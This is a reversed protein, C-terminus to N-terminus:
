ISGDLSASIMSWMDPHRHPSLMTTQIQIHSATYKKIRPFLGPLIIKISRREGERTPDGSKGLFFRLFNAKVVVQEEVKVAVRRDIMEAALLKGEVVWRLLKTSLQQFGSPYTCHLLPHWPSSHCKKICCLRVYIYWQLYSKEGRNNWPNIEPSHKWFCKPACEYLEVTRWGCHITSYILQNLWSFSVKVIPKQSWGRMYYWTKRKNAVFSGFWCHKLRGRLVEQGKGSQRHGSVVYIKLFMECFYLKMYFLFLSFFTGKNWLSFYHMNPPSNCSKEFDYSQQATGVVHYASKYERPRTTTSNLSRSEDAVLTM